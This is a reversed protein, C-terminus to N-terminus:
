GIGRHDRLAPRPLLLFYPSSAVAEYSARRRSRRARVLNPSYPFLLMLKQNVCYNTQSRYRENNTQRAQRQPSFGHSMSADQRRVRIGPRDRGDVRGILQFRSRSFETSKQPAPAIDFEDDRRLPTSPRSLRSWYLLPRSGRSIVVRRAKILRRLRPGSQGALRPRRPAGERCRGGSSVRALQEM